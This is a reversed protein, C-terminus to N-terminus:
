PEFRRRIQLNGLFEMMETGDGTVHFNGIKGHFEKWRQAPVSIVDQGSDLLVGNMMVFSSELNGSLFFQQRIGFLLFSISKEVANPLKSIESIGQDFIDGLKDSSHLGAKIKVGRFVRPECRDYNVIISNFSCLIEKSMTFASERVITFMRVIANHHNLVQEMEHITKGGITIGEVLTQVEPYTFSNGRMQVFDYVLEPLLKHFHFLAQEQNPAGSPPLVSPDWRFGLLAYLAERHNSSSNDLTM